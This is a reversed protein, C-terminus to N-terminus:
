AEWWLYCCHIYVHGDPSGNKYTLSFFLCEWSFWFGEGHGYDNLLIQTCYLIINYVFMLYLKFCWEQCGSIFLNHPPPPPPSTICLFRFLYLSTFINSSYHYYKETMSITANCESHQKKSYTASEFCCWRTRWTSVANYRPARCALNIAKHNIIGLYGQRMTMCLLVAYRSHSM